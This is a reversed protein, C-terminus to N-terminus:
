KLSLGHNMQSYVDIMNGGYSIGTAAHVGIGYFSCSLGDM